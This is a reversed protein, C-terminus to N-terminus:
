KWKGIAIFDAGTNRDGGGVGYITYQFYTTTIYGDHLTAPSSAWSGYNPSKATIVVSPPSIFAYPFTHQVTGNNRSGWSDSGRCILTGDAFKTYYGNANSESDIVKAGGFWVNLTDCNITDTATIIPAKIEGGVNLKAM